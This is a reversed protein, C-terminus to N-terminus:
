HSDLIFTNCLRPPHPSCTDQTSSNKFQLIHTQRINPVDRTEERRRELEERDKRTAAAAEGEAKKNPKLNKWNKRKLIPM